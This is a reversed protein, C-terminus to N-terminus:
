GKQTPIIGGSTKLSWPLANPTKEAILMTISRYLPVKGVVKMSVPRWHSRGFAQGGWWYIARSARRFRGALKVVFARGCGPLPPFEKSRTGDPCSPIM